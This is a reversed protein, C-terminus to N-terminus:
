DLENGEDEKDAIIESEDVDGKSNSYLAIRQLSYGLLYLGNLAADNYDGDKFLVFIADIQKQYWEAGNLRQIYPNLQEYILKWSRMPKSAFANMYRVANTSRKDTDDKGTQLYRAHSELRDAIALMRGFLYNRDGCKMDLELSFVEEQNNYYKRVIACTINVANNWKWKDWGGDKKEYSFPNGVRNVAASIWDYSLQEGCVIHSLLRERGQKLIKNYGEGKEEGYVAAIIRKVGPASVFERKGINFWWCCTNHWAKVRAIYENETLEQYFTIGMRGTTASDLAIVATRQLSIEFGDARGLGQLAKRLDNGYESALAAAADIIKDSETKVSSKAYGYTSIFPDPLAKGDDIRWAVIAQSDCKYGQTAILYKLMAHAKHSADTSIANAQGPKTFRGRYTYNTDDNCSILKASNKYPYVGKPHMTAAPAEVGTIYCLVRESTQITDYYKQWAAAVSGDEWLNPVFDDTSLEVRFRVFLKNIDGQERKVDAERRINGHVDYADADVKIEYTRLDNLITRGTIYEYVANVKPHYSRWAALQRVYANYKEEDLTLYGLQDHLPHPKVGNTRSSSDETCPIEITIGSAEARRFQGFGDITVCIDTKKAMHYKKLLTNGKNDMVGSLYSVRDYTEALNSFLSM